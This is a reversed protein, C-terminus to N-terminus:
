FDFIGKKDNEKKNDVKNDFQNIESQEDEIEKEETLWNEYQSTTIDLGKMADTSLSYSLVMNMREDKSQDLLL